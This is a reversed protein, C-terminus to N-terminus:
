EDQAEWSVIYYITYKQNEHDAVKSKETVKFGRDRLVLINKTYKFDTIFETKGFRANDKIRRNIIELEKTSRGDHYGEILTIADDKKM